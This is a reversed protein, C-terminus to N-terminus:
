PHERITPAPDTKKVGWLGQSSLASPRDQSQRGDPGYTAGKGWLLPTGLSAWRHGGDVVLPGVIRHAAASVADLLQSRKIVLGPCHIPNHTFLFSEVFEVREIILVIAVQVVSRILELGIASGEIITM